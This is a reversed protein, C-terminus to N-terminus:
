FLEFPRFVPKTEYKQIVDTNKLHSQVIKAVNKLKLNVLTKIIYEWTVPAEEPEEGIWCRLVEELRNSNTLSIDHSLSTRTDDSIRLERAFDPWRSSNDRILDFLEYKDPSKKMIDNGLLIYLVSNGSIIIIQLSNFILDTISNSQQCQNAEM